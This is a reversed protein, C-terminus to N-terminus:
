AGIAAICPGVEDFLADSGTQKPGTDHNSGMRSELFESVEVRRRPSSVASVILPVGAESLNRFGVIQFAPATINLSCHCHQPAWHRSLLAAPIRNGCPHPLLLFCHTAAVYPLYNKQLLVVRQLLREAWRAAPPLVNIRTSRAWSIADSVPHLTRWPM